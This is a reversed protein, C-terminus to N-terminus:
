TWPPLALKSAINNSSLTAGDSVGVAGGGVGVVMPDDAGVGVEIGVDIGVMVGIGVM